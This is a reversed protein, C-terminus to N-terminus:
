QLLDERESTHAKDKLDKALRNITNSIKNASVRKALEEMLLASKMLTEEDLGRSKNLIYNAETQLQEKKLSSLYRKFREEKNKLELKTKAQSLDIVNADNSNTKNM